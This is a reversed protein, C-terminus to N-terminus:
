ITLLFQTYKEKLTIIEHKGSPAPAITHSAAHTPSPEPPTRSCLPASGPSCRASAPGCASGRPARLITALEM